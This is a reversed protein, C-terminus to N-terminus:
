KSSVELTNGKIIAFIGGARLAELIQSLSLDRGLEGALPEDSLKNLIKIEVNYWRAIQRLAATADLNNFDFYGNKWAVDQAINTQRIINKQYSQGPKINTGNVHISGNVLTTKVAEEDPYANINFETGLVTIIDTNTKVLFPKSPNKKVDFYAEGTITVERTKGNFATPYTISSAANLWVRTGDALTLQYQGGKPTSMTNMANVHNSGYILQGNNNDISLEGDNIKELVNKNLKVIEGNSLTLTARTYGPPIDNNSTITTTVPQHEKINNMWLYASIGFLIIIAAAYRFWATKLFHVRHVRKVIPRDSVTIALISALIADRAEPNINPAQDTSINNQASLERLLTRYNSDGAMHVFEESEAETSTLSIYREFLYTFRHTYM